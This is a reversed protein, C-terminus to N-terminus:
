SRPSVGLAIPSRLPEGEVGEAIRAIKAVDGDGVAPLVRAEWGPHAPGVVGSEGAGDFGGHGEIHAVDAL